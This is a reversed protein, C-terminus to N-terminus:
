LLSRPGPGFSISPSLPSFFPPIDMIDGGDQIRVYYTHAVGHWKPHLSYGAVNIRIVSRAGGRSGVDYIRYGRRTRSHKRKEWVDERFCEVSNLLRIKLPLFFIYVDREAFPAYCRPIRSIRRIVEERSARSRCLYWKLVRYIMGAGASGAPMRHIM